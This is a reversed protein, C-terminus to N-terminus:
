LLYKDSLHLCETKSKKKFLYYRHINKKETKTTAPTKLSVKLLREYMSGATNYGVGLKAKISEAYSFICDSSIIGFSM